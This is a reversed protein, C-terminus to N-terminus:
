DRVLRPRTPRTDAPASRYPSPAPPGDLTFRGHHPCGAIGNGHALLCAAISSTSAPSSNHDTSRPDTSRATRSSQTPSRDSGAAVAPPRLPKGDLANAVLAVGRGSRPIRDSTVGTLLTYFSEALWEVPAKSWWDNYDFWGRSPPLGTAQYYYDTFEPDNTLGCTITVHHGLEHIVARRMGSASRDPNVDIHDSGPLYVSRMGNLGRFGITLDDWCPNSGYRAEFTDIAAQVAAVAAPPQGGTDLTIRDAGVAPAAPGAAVVTVAVALAAGALRRRHTPLHGTRTHMTHTSQSNGPPEWM